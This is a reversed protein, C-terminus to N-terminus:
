NQGEASGKKKRKKKEDNGIGCYCYLTKWSLVMLIGGLRIFMFYMVTWGLEIVTKDCDFKLSTTKTQESLSTAVSEGATLKRELLVSITKRKM